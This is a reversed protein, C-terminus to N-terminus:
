MEIHMKLSAIYITRRTCGVHKYRWFKGAPIAEPSIIGIVRLYIPPAGFYAMILQMEQFYISRAGIPETCWISLLRFACYRVLLLCFCQEPSASACHSTQPYYTTFLKCSFNINLQMKQRTLNVSWQWYPIHISQCQCVYVSFLGFEHFHSCKDTFTTAIQLVAGTSIFVGATRPSWNLSYM